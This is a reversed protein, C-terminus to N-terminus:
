VVLFDDESLALNKDLKIFKVADTGGQGDADYRLWGKEAQYLIRDQNSDAAKGFDFFKSKLGGPGGLKAFVASDLAITDVGVEFDKITDAHKKKVGASFRFTDADDGGILKDKHKGGDLLDDGAKGRLTDKGKKGLLTDDWETGALTEGGNTGELTVGNHQLRFVNVGDDASGAVFLHSVGDVMAITVGTAGALALDGDDAVNAVNTLTGDEAVSFVSVGGDLFSAAFLYTVGDVVTTQLSGVGDLELNPDETDDVNDVNTLTGDVGVEFVSVGDDILGAVFLYTTAGLMATTVAVAGKLELAADATDDVNDVNTLTGDPAVRFVSVGDDREGAAFLYVAGNVVATSIGNINDLQYNVDDVDDVNDVNTLSGDADVAFVSVGDDVGGGAFLYTQSGFTATAVALVGALQLDGADGDDINEVNTLSGDASVAFVSVGSDLRGGVFLYTTGGVEAAVVDAAEHLEFTPTDIVNDVNTLTGDAGVAFVSLGDDDFGVAALFIAGGVTFTTLGGAGQLELLPHDSDFVTDTHILALAM